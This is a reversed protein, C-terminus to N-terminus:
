SIAYNDITFFRREFLWPNIKKLLLLQFLSQTIVIIIGSFINIIYESRNIYVKIIKLILLEIAIFSVIYYPMFAKLTNYVTHIYQPM